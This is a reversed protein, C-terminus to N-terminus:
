GKMGRWGYGNGRMLIGCIPGGKITLFLVGGGWEDGLSLHVYDVGLIRLFTTGPPFKRLDIRPQVDDAENAMMGGTGTAEMTM